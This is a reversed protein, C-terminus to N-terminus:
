SSRNHIHLYQIFDAPPTKLALILKSHGGCLRSKDEGHEVVNAARPMTSTEIDGVWVWVVGDVVTVIFWRGFAVTIVRVVVPGVGNIHGLLM